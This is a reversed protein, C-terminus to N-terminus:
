VYAIVQADVSWGIESLAPLGAQDLLVSLWAEEAESVPVPHVALQGLFGGAERSLLLHHDTLLELAVARRSAFSM